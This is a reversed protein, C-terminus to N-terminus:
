DETRMGRRWAGDAPTACATSTAKAPRSTSRASTPTASLAARRGTARCPTAKSSRARPRSCTCWRAPGARAGAPAPWSTAEGDLCMGEIGRQVGRYDRGFTHLVSHQGLTGDDRIPYARLERTGSPELSNEAVYLTRQDPSIQVASPAATDYTVRRICWLRNPYRALVLVSAHDLPGQVQPGVPPLEGYPDTFWIRGRGDVVLDKPQNHFRGDFRDALLTTSGDAHFEVVRRSANQCGYLHGDASSALGITRGSYKRFESVSGSRPDHRLIRSEIHSPLVVSFLISEGDWAVGGTPGEYPGAVREFEWTM